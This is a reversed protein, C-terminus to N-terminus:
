TKTIAIISSGIGDDISPVYINFKKHGKLLKYVHHVDFKIGHKEQEFDHMLIKCGPKVFPWWGFLDYFVYPFLHDGDIFLLDIEKDWSKCIEMSNGHILKINQINLDSITRQAINIADSNIEIGYCNIDPCLKATSIISFGESVGIEVYNSNPTLEDVYNMLVKLDEPFLGRDIKYKKVIKSCAEFHDNYKELDIKM